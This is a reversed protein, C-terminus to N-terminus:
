SYNLIISKKMSPIRCDSKWKNVEKTGDARSFWLKELGLENIKNESRWGVSTLWEMLGSANTRTITFGVEIKTTEM